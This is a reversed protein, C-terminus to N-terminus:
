LVNARALAAQERRWNALIGAYANLIRPNRSFFVLGSIKIRFALEVADIQDDNVTIQAIVDDVDGSNEVFNMDALLQDREEQAVFAMAESRETVVLFDESIRRYLRPMAMQGNELWVRSYIERGEADRARMVVQVFDIELYRETDERIHRNLYFLTSAVHEVLFFNVVWRRAFHQTLEDNNITRVLLQYFRQPFDFFTPDVRHGVLAEELARILNSVLDIIIANFDAPPVEVEEEEREAEEPEEEQVPPRRRRRRQPLRDVFRWIERRGSRAVARPARPRLNFPLGVRRGSRLTLAGGTMEGKGHTVVTAAELMDDKTCSTTPSQSSFVEIFRQLWGDRLPLDLIPENTQRTHKLFNILAMRVQNLLSLTEASADDVHVARFSDLFSATDQRMSLNLRQATIAQGLGTGRLAAPRLTSVLREMIIANQANMLDEREVREAGVFEIYRGVNVTYACDAMIKWIMRRARRMGTQVIEFSINTFTRRDFLYNNIVRAFFYYGVLLHPPPEGAFPRNRVIVGGPSLNLLQTINYNLLRSAVRAAPVSNINPQQRVTPDNLAPTLNM